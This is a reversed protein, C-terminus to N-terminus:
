LDQGLRLNLSLSLWRYTPVATGNAVRIDYNIREKRQPILKRPFM